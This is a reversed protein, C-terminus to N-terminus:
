LINNPFKLFEKSQNILDVLMWRGYIDRRECFFIIGGELDDISENENFNSNFIEYYFFQDRIGQEVNFNGIKRREGHIEADNV